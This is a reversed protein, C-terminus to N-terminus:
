VFAACYTGLQTLADNIRRDNHLNGAGTACLDVFHAYEAAWTPDAQELTEVEELPRGSPLVRRRRTFTSPGWKCLGQVHVSGREGCVEAYFTNRWSLLSVELELVPRGKVGFSVHDFSRNEFRNASWVDFAVPLGGFLFLVLDLLHSGLDPLVGLGQDRWASERVDRATGNGYFFRASHAEGAANDDPRDVSLHPEFRHNYATHAPRATSAQTLSISPRILPQRRVHQLQGHYRLVPAKGTPTLRRRTPSAPVDVQPALRSRIVPTRAAGGASRGPDWASTAVEHTNFEGDVATLKARVEEPQRSPARTDRWPRLRARTDVRSRMGTAVLALPPRGTTPDVVTDVFSHHSRTDHQATHSAESGAPRQVARAFLEAGAHIV